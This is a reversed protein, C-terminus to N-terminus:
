FTRILLAGPELPCDSNEPFVTTDQACSLRQTRADMRTRKISHTIVSRQFYDATTHITKGAAFWQSIGIQHGYRGSNAAADDAQDRRQRKVFNGGLYGVLDV